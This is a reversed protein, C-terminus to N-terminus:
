EFHIVDLRRAAGLLPLAVQQFALRVPRHRTSAPVLEFSRPLEPLRGRDERNVFVVYRNRRDVEALGRVLGLLYADVGTAEPLLATLDIGIRM